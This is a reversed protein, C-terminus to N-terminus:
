EGEDDVEDVEWVTDEFEEDDLFGERRGDDVLVCGMRGMTPGVARKQEKLKKLEADSAGGAAAAM